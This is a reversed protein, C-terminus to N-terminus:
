LPLLSRAGGAPFFATLRCYEYPPECRRVESIRAKPPEVLLMVSGDPAFRADSVSLPDDIDLPIPRDTLTDYLRLRATAAGGGERTLALSEFRDLEGPLRIDTAPDIVGDELDVRVFEDGYNLFAFGEEVFAISSSQESLERELVREDAALDYVVLEPVVPDVWVVLDDEDFVAFTAALGLTAIRVRSGDPGVTVLNGRIDLYVAGEGWQAFERVDRVDVRSELLYMTGTAYFAIPSPNRYEASAVTAFREPEDKQEPEEHTAVLLAVVGVVLVVAFAAAISTRRRGRRRRASAAIMAEVPPPDVPILELVPLLDPVRAYDPRRVPGGTLERVQDPGLGVVRELVLARREAPELRDLEAEVEPWGADDLEETESAAVPVDWWADRRGDWRDFLDQIVHVDIDAWEDREDWDDHIRSFTDATADQALGPPVGVAILCHVLQAWRATVYSTFDLDDTM